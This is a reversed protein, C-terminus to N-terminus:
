WFYMFWTNTKQRSFARRLVCPFLRESCLLSAALEVWAHRRTLLRFCLGCQHLALPSMELLAGDMVGYFARVEDSRYSVWEITALAPEMDRVQRRTTSFCFVTSGRNMICIFLDFLKQRQWEKLSFSNSLKTNDLVLIVIVVKLDSLSVDFDTKSVDRFRPCWSKLRSNRWIKCRRSCLISAVKTFTPKFNIALCFHM